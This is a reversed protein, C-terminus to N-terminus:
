RGLLVLLLFTGIQQGVIGKLFSFLSFPLLILSPEIFFPAMLLLWNSMWKEQWPLYLSHNVIGPVGYNVYNCWIYISIYMSVLLLIPKAGIQKLSFYPSLINSSSYEIYDSLGVYNLSVTIKIYKSDLCIWGYFLIFEGSPPLNMGGYVNSIVFIFIQIM